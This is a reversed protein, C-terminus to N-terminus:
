EQNVIMQGVKALSLAEAISRRMGREKFRHTLSKDEINEEVTGLDEVPFGQKSLRNVNVANIGEQNSYIYHMLGAIGKQYEPRLHM